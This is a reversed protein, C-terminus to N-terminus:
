IFSCPFFQTCSPAHLRPPHLLPNFAYPRCPMLPHGSHTTLVRCAREFFTGFPTRKAGVIFLGKRAAFASASMSSSNSSNRPSNCPPTLSPTSHSLPPHVTHSIGHLAAPSCSAKSPVLQCGHLWPAHATSIRPRTCAFTQLHNFVFHDLRKTRRAPAAVSKGFSCVGGFNIRRATVRRAHALKDGQADTPHITCLLAPIQHSFRVHQMAPISRKAVGKEKSHGRGSVCWYAVSWVLVLM